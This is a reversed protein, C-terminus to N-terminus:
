IILTTDIINEQDCYEEQWRKKGDIERNAGIKEKVRHIM